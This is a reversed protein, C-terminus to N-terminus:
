QTGKEDGAKVVSTILGYKTNLINALFICESYNFSNTALYVGQGIQRSGDQM